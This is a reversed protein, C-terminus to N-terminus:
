RKDRKPHCGTTAIFLASFSYYITGQLHLSYCLYKLKLCEGNSLDKEKQTYPRTPIRKEVALLYKLDVHKFRLTNLM